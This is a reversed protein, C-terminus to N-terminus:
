SKTLTLRQSDNGHEFTCSSTLSDPLETSRVVVYVEFVPYMFTTNVDSPVTVAGPKTAERLVGTGDVHRCHGAFEYEWGAEVANDLQV